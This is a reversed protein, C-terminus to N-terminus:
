RKMIILDLEQNLNLLFNEFSVEIITKTMSMAYESLQVLAIPNPLGVGVDSAQEMIDNELITEEIPNPM